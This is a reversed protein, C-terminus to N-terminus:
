QKNGLVDFKESGRIIYVHGNEIVKVINADSNSKAFFELLTAEGVFGVIFRQSNEGPVGYFTYNGQSLNTLVGTETDLLMINMGETEPISITCDGAEMLRIGLYVMGNGMPRELISQKAGDQEAYLQAATSGPAFMKAADVGVEYSMSAQDNLVVRARDKNNNQELYFNLLTRTAREPSRYIYEGNEDWPNYSVGEPVATHQRGDLPMRLTAEGAAAQYFFAEHPQLVYYDDEISYSAFYEGEMMTWVTIIGGGSIKRTDYFCPYPNVLMNWNADWAREAPYQTLPLSQVSPTFMNQMQADNMAKFSMEAPAYRQNTMQLIFGEGALLTDNDEVPIWVGDYLGAAQRAGDFRRISYYNHDGIAIDSVKQNFPLGMFHWMNPYVRERLEITDASMMGDVILSSMVGTYGPDFSSWGWMIGRLVNLFPSVNGLYDKKLLRSLHLNASIPVNVHGCYATDFMSYDIAMTPLAPLTSITDEDLTLYDHAIIDYGTEHRDYRYGYAVYLDIISDNDSQVTAYSPNSIQLLQMTNAVVTGGYMYFYSFPNGCLQVEPNMNNIVVNAENGYFADCDIYTLSAPLVLTDMRSYAFVRQGLGRLGTLDIKHFQMNYMSWNGLRVVGTDIVLHHPFDEYNINNIIYSVWPARNYESYDSTSGTGSVRLTDGKLSVLIDNDTWTIAVNPDTVTGYLMVPFIGDIGDPEVWLTDTFTGVEDPLLFFPVKWYTRNGFFFEAWDPTMKAETVLSNTDVIMPMIGSDMYSQYYSFDILKFHTGHQLHCRVTDINEVYMEVMRMCEEIPDGLKVSVEAKTQQLSFQPQTNDYVYGYFVVYAPQANSPYFWMTDVYEGIENGTFFVQLQSNRAMEEFTLKMTSHLISDSESARMLFHSGQGFTIRLSDNNQSYFKLWASPSYQETYGKSLSFSSESIYFYGQQPMPESLQGLLLIQQVPVNANNTWVRLTDTYQGLVNTAFLVPLAFSVGYGTGGVPIAMTQNFSLSGDPEPVANEQLGFYQANSLRAFVTDVGYAEGQAYTLGSVTYASEEQELKIEYYNSNMRLYPEGVVTTDGGSQAPAATFVLAQPQVGPASIWLTDSFQGVPGTYMVLFYFSPADPNTTMNVDYEKLLYQYINPTSGDGGEGGAASQIAPDLIFFNSSENAIRGHVNNVNMAMGLVFTTGTMIRGSTEAQITPEAQVIRIVGSATSDGGIVGDGGAGAQGYSFVTTLVALLLGLLKLHKM